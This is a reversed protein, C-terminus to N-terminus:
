CRQGRGASHTKPESFVEALEDQEDDHIGKDTRHDSQLAADKGGHGLVLEVEGRACRDQREDDHKADRFRAGVVARAPQRVAQAALVHQHGAPQNGNRFQTSSALTRRPMLWPSVHDVV